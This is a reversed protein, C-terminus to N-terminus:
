EDGDRVLDEWSGDTFQSANPNFRLPADGIPGHRNKALQLQAVRPTENIKRVLFMVQDADQELRGSDRLDSLRPRELRGEAEPSRSLQSLSLVPVDLDKALCKMGRSIEGYIENSTKGPGHMLQLYDVVVLDCGHVQKTKRVLARLQTIGMGSRDDIILRRQQFVKAADDILEIDNPAGMMNFRGSQFSRSDVGAQTSIMKETLEQRSMELSVFLVTGKAAAVNMAINCALTTKGMAPRAALFILRGPHLTNILRDIGAFGSPYGRIQIKGTALGEAREAVDISVPGISCTTNSESKETIRDVGTQIFELADEAGSFNKARQLLVAIKRTASFEKVIEAYSKVNAVDPLTDVYHSIGCAGGCVELKGDSRLKNTVTVVDAAKGSSSIEEISKWVTQNAESYFDESTIIDIVEGLASTDILVAGILAAEADQNHDSVQM